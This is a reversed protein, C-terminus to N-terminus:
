ILEHFFRPPNEYVSNRWFSLITLEDSGGIFGCDSNSFRITSQLLQLRFSSVPIRTSSTRREPGIIGIKGNAVFNRCRTPFTPRNHWRLRAIHRPSFLRSAIIFIIHDKTQSGRPDRILDFYQAPAPALCCSIWLACIGSPDPCRGIAGSSAADSSSWAM